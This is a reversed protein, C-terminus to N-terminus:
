TPLNLVIDHSESFDFIDGNCLMPIWMNVNERSEMNKKEINRYFSNAVFDALQVLKENKSDTYEVNFIDCLPNKLTLQQNLYGSLDYKAGTAINQEDIIFEIKGKGTMYRSHKRYYSDLYTQIMYNFSRAHNEIFRDTTYNNDLVIIGLEMKDLVHKCIHNYVDRKTTESIDSGKIEKKSIIMDKYKDNKRMMKSIRNKYLRRVAVPDDTFIMAIVFYRNNSINTKTISGSEDVYVYITKQNDIGNEM